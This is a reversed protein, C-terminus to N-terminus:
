WFEKSARRQAFMYWVMVGTPIVLAAIDAWLFNAKLIMSYYFYALGCVIMAIGLLLLRPEVFDIFGDVDVCTEATCGGPYLFKNPFLMCTRRLRFYTYLAYIGCGYLMILLILSLMGDVALPNGQAAAETAATTETFATLLRHM